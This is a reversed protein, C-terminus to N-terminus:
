KRVKEDCYDEETRNGEFPRTVPDLVVDGRIELPHHCWLHSNVSAAAAGTVVAAVPLAAVVSVVAMLVM